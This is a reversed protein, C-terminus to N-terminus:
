KESGKKGISGKDGLFSVGRGKGAELKVASSNGEAMDMKGEKITSTWVKLRSSNNDVGVVEKYLVGVGGKNDGIKMEPDVGTKDVFVEHDM